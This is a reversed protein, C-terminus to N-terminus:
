SCHPAFRDQGPPREPQGAIKLLKFAKKFGAFRKEIAISGGRSM